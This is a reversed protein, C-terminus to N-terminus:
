RRQEFERHTQESIFYYTKGEKELSSQAYAKPFRVDAVPDVCWITKTTSIPSISRSTHRQSNSSAITSGTKSRQGTLKRWRFKSSPTRISNSTSRFSRWIM